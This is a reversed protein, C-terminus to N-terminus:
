GTRSSLYVISKYLVISLLLLDYFYGYLIIFIQIELEELTKRERERERKDNKRAKYYDVVDNKRLQTAHCLSEINREKLIYRDIFINKKRSSDIQQRRCCCRYYYDDYDCRNIKREICDFSYV